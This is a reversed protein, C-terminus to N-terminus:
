PLNHTMHKKTIQINKTSNMRGFQNHIDPNTLPKTEEALLGRQSNLQNYDSRGSLQPENALTEM